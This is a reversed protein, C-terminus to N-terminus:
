RLLIIKFKILQISIESNLFRSIYCASSFYSVREHEKFAIKVTDPLRFFDLQVQPKRPLEDTLATIAM